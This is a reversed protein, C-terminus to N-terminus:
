HASKRTPPLKIQNIVQSQKQKPKYYHQYRRM